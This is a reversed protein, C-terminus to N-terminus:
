FSFRVGFRIQRPTQFQPPAGALVQTYRLGLSTNPMIEREIGLAYENTYSLKANPDITDASTGALVFHNTVDGALVGNPIAKTLGADFFDARSTSDDASLARAALDNPIRAYYPAGPIALGQADVVQGAISGTTKVPPRARWPSCSRWCCCRTQGPNEQPSISPQL